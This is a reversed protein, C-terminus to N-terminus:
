ESRADRFTWFRNGAFNVVLSFVIAFLQAIEPSLGMLSVGTKLAVLNAGLSFVNVLFFKAMESARNDQRSKFTWSRNLLYSNTLGALYGITSAVLYHIGALNLLGYFVAYHIATNLVGVLGFKIFQVLM